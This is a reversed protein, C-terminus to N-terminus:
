KYLIDIDVDGNIGAIKGNNALQWILYDGKYTTKETYHALWVNAFDEWIKELYFKSGYMMGKYGNSEIKKIFARAIENVEHFSIKFSNWKSWNEWDFAIPLDLKEKDLTNIVWKAQDLAEKIEKAQSNFYIGVLLNADKAKKLNEKFYPDIIIEGNIGDQYGIRIMVFNAGANKVENFDIKGQWKSVDIGVLNASDKNKELIDSFLTNEKVPNSNNSSTNNKSPDYVNLTVNVKKINKSSDSLYYELQYKGEKNLDFNGKIECKINGSYNDGYTILNCLDGDYGIKVTKNTGSFVLPPTKDVINLKFRYIYKKNDKLYNISYEKEGLSDTDIQYNESVIQYNSNNILIDNLYVNSYVDIDKNEIKFYNVNKEEYIKESCSTLLFSIIFIIVLKM